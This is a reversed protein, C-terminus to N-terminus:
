KDRHLILHAVIDRGVLQQAVVDRGDSVPCLERSHPIRVRQPAPQRAEEVRLLPTLDLVRDLRHTVQQLM